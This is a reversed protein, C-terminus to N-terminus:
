YDGGGHNGARSPGYAVQRGYGTKKIGSSAALGAENNFVNFRFGRSHLKQSTNENVPASRQAPGRSRLHSSDPFNRLAFNPELRQRESYAVDDRSYEQPLRPSNEPLFHGDDHKVGTRPQSYTQQHSLSDGNFLLNNFGNQAGDQNFFNRPRIVSFTDSPGSNGETNRNRSRHSYYGRSMIQPQQQQYMNRNSLDTNVGQYSYNPKNQHNSFYYQQGRKGPRAINSSEKIPNYADITDYRTNYGAQASYDDASNDNLKKGDDLAPFDQHFDDRYIKDLHEVAHHQSDHWSDVTQEQPVGSDFNHQLSQGRGEEGGDNVDVEEDNTKDYNIEWRVHGGSDSEELLGNKDDQFPNRMVNAQVNQTSTPTTTPSQTAQRRYEDHRVDARGNSTWVFLGCALLLLVLSFVVPSRWTRANLSLSRLLFSTRPIM